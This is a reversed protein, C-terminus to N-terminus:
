ETISIPENYYPSQKNPQVQMMNTETVGAEGLMDIIPSRDCNIKNFLSDIGAFLTLKKTIKNLSFPNTHTNQTPYKEIVSLESCLFYSYISKMIIYNLCLYTRNVKLMSTCNYQYLQVLMSFGFTLEIHQPTDYLVKM